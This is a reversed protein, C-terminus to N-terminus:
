IHTSWCCRHSPKSQLLNDRRCSWAAASQPLRARRYFYLTEEIANCCRARQKKEIRSDPIYGTLISLHSARQACDINTTKIPAALIFFATRGADPPHAFIAPWYCCATM